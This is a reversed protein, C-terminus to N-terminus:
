FLWKRVKYGADINGDLIHKVDNLQPSFQGAYSPEYGRIDTFYIPLTDMLQFRHVQPCVVFPVSSFVSIQFLDTPSPMYM